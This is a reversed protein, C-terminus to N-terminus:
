AKLAHHRRREKAPRAPSSGGYKVDRSNNKNIKGSSFTKFGPTTYLPWGYRGERGERDERVKEWL